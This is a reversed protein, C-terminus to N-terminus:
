WVSRDIASVVFAQFNLARFERIEQYAKELDSSIACLHAGQYQKGLRTEWLKEPTMEPM